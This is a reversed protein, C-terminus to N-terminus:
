PTVPAKYFHIQGDVQGGLNNAVAANVGLTLDFSNVLTAFTWGCDDSLHVDIMAKEGSRYYDRARFMAADQCDFFGGATWTPIAPLGAVIRPGTDCLTTTDITTGAPQTANFNARCLELWTPQSLSAPPTGTTNLVNTEKTTDSDELTVMQGTVDLVKFPMDDLSKWSTARPVVIDGVAPATGTITVVAPKAKTAVTIPLSVADANDSIRIVSGQSSIRSM